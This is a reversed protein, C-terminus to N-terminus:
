LNLIIEEDEETAIVEFGTETDSETYLYLNMIAVNTINAVKFHDSYFVVGNVTIQLYYVGCFLQGSLKRGDQFLTLSNLDFSYNLDNSLDTESLGDHCIIKTQIDWVIGETYIDSVDLVFPLIHDIANITGVDCLDKCKFYNQKLKSDYFRFAQHSLDKILGPHVGAKVNKVTFLESYWKEGGILTQLYYTGCNLDIDSDDYYHLWSGDPLQTKNLTIPLLEM